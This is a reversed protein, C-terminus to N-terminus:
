PRKEKYSRIMTALEVEARVASHAASLIDLSDVDARTLNRTGIYIQAKTLKQLASKLKYENEM